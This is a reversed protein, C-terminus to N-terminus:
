CYELNGTQFYKGSEVMELMRVVESMEPRNEAVVEVCKMAVLMVGMMEEEAGNGGLIEPDFVEAELEEAGVSQVWKPLDHGEEGVAVQSGPSKGTLMELLVVGFSYVDSKFSIMSGAEQQVEPARYGAVRIPAATCFLLHMGYDSLCAELSQTVLINSSKVNGHPLKATEHIHQM